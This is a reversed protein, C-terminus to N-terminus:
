APRKRRHPAASGQVSREPAAPAATASAAAAPAATAPAAKTIKEVPKAAKEAEKAKKVKLGARLEHSHLKKGPNKVEGAEKAVKAAKQRGVFEGSSLLFGRKDQNKGRGARAEVQAHSESVKGKVVKGSKEKVAPEVVKLKSM